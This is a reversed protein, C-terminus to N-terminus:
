GGHVDSSPQGCHLVLWLSDAVVLKPDPGLLLRCLGLGAVDAALAGVLVEVGRVAGDAFAAAALAIAELVAPLQQDLIVPVSLAIRQGVREGALLYPVQGAGLIPLV